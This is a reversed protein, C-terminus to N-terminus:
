GDPREPRALCNELCCLLTVMQTHNVRVQETCEQKCRSVLAWYLTYLQARALGRGQKIDFKASSIVYESFM